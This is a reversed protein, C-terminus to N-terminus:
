RALSGSRRIVPAIPKNTKERNCKHGCTPCAVDHHAPRRNDPTDTGAPHGPRPRLPIVHDVADAGPHGCLHCVDCAALLAKNARQQARTNTRPTTVARISRTGAMRGNRPPAPECLPKVVGPGVYKGLQVVCRDFDGPVGWQIKAAGEGEAWYRMLRETSAVDGPTVERGGAM